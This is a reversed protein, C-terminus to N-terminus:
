FLTRPHNRHLRKAKPNVTGCLVTASSLHVHKNQQTAYGDTRGASGDPEGDESQM